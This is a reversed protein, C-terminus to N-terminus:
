KRLERLQKFMEGVPNLEKPDIAVSSLLQTRDKGHAVILGGALAPHTLKTVFLGPTEVSEVPDGVELELVLKMKKMNSIGNQSMKIEMEDDRGYCYSTLMHGYKDSGKIWELEKDDVDLSHHFAEIREPTILM